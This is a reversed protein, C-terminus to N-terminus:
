KLLADFLPEGEYPNNAELMYLALTGVNWIDAKTTVMHSHILEPATWFAQIPNHRLQFLYGYNGLTVEGDPGIFVNKATVDRHM